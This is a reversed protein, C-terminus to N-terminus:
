DNVLSKLAARIIKDLEDDKSADGLKSKMSQAFEINDKKRSDAMSAAAEKTVKLIESNGSIAQITEITEKLSSM